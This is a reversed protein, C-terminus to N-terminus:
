RPHQSLPCLTVACRDTEAGDEWLTTGREVHVRKFYPVLRQIRFRYDAATAFCCSTSTESVFCYDENLDSTFPKFSQM